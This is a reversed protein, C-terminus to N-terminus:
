RKRNKYLWRDFKDFSCSGKFTKIVILGNARAEKEFEAISKYGSDQKKHINGNKKLRFFLTHM